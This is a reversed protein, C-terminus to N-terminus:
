LRGAIRSVFLRGLQMLAETVPASSSMPSAMRYHIPVEVIKLKRCHVKIETQFFHARSHVGRELVRELVDRRFMEFGSTMDTLSTGILANTLVTGGWSVLRRRLSSSTIKGGDIFRSGFVCDYGENMYRFFQPIDQPRHSFGADIELIWEAGSALAERYGRVYGDVVSRNDPAWVVVLRHDTQSYERLVQVTNDTTATDVVAFLTVCKVSACADLVERVFQVATNAENAMPCAIALHVDYVPRVGEVPTAARPNEGHAFSAQM